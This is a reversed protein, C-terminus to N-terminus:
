IGKLGSTRSTATQTLGDPIVNNSYQGPLPSPNTGELWEIGYRSAVVKPAVFAVTTDVTSLTQSGVGLYAGVADNTVGTVPRGTLKMKYLEQNDAATGPTSAAVALTQADTAIGGDSYLGTTTFSSQPIWTTLYAPATIKASAALDLQYTTASQPNIAPNVIWSGVGVGSLSSPNGKSDKIVGTKGSVSTRLNYTPATVPGPAITSSAIWSASTIFGQGVAKQSSGSLDRNVTSTGSLINDAAANAGDTGTESQENLNVQGFDRANLASANASMTSTAENDIVIPSVITPSTGANAGHVARINTEGAERGNNLYAAMESDGNFSPGRDAILTIKEFNIGEGKGSSPLAFTSPTLVTGAYNTSTAGITGSAMAAKNSGDVKADGSAYGESYGIANDFAAAYPTAPYVINGLGSAHSATGNAEALVNGLGQNMSATAFLSATGGLSYDALNAASQAEMEAFASADGQVSTKSVAVSVSGDLTTSIFAGPNYAGTGSPLIQTYTMAGNTTFGATADGISGAPVNADATITETLLDSFTKPGLGDLLGLPISNVYQVQGNANGVGAGNSSHSSAGGVSSIYGASAASALVLVGLMLVLVSKRILKM